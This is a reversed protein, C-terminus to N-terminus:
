YVTLRRARKYLDMDFSVLMTITGGTVVENLVSMQDICTAITDLRQQPANIIPMSFCNDQKSIEVIEKTIPQGYRFQRSNQQM